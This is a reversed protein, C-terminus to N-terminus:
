LFHLECFVCPVAFVRFSDAQCVRNIGFPSVSSFKDVATLSYFFKQFAFPFFLEVVFEFFFQPAKTFVSHCHAKFVLPMIMCSLPTAAVSIFHPLEIFM